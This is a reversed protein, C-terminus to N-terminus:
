RRMIVEEAMNQLYLYDSKDVIATVNLERFEKVIGLGMSSYLIFPVNIKLEQLNKCVWAGSEGPMMYDCIVLMIDPNALVMAVGDRANSATLIEADLRIALLSSVVALMNDCDDILLVKNKKGLPTM